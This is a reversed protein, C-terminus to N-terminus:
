GLISLLGGLIYGLITAWPKIGDRGFVLWVLITGLAVSVGTGWYVWRLPVLSAETEFEDKDEEEELPITSEDVLMPQHKSSRKSSVVEVVVPVLSVLSDACMITLSIWLIWGRAGSTMDGVPGPAWGQYKSLPSLFGWGVIM